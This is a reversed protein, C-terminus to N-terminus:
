ARPGLADALESRGNIGLTRYASTLHHEVTRLTLYFREAIQRNTHGAVALEAIGRQQKTLADIGTRQERPRRGGAEAIAAAVREAVAHAGCARASRYAQRLQTEAEQDGAAHLAVGHRLLTKAHELEATSDALVEASERLLGVGAAGGRIVGLARLAIGLPRPAGWQRALSVEEAALTEAAEQEGLRHHALAARSRWPLAAPNHLGMALMIQGHQLQDALAGQPDGTQMRLRGRTSLVAFATPTTPGDASLGVEAFLADLDDLRGQEVYSEALAVYVDPHRDTGSLPGQMALAMNLEEVSDDCRGEEYAIRSLVYHSWEAVATAGTRRALEMMEDACRRALDLRGALCFAGAALAHSTADQATGPPGIELVQNAYALAEDRAGGTLCVRMALTAAVARQIAPKTYPSDLLRRAKEVRAGDFSNHGLALSAAELEAALAPDQDAVRATAQDLVVTAGWHDGLRAIAEALARAIGAIVKPETALDAAETLRTVAAPLDVSLEAQGLEVLLHLRTAEATPETLARRLYTVASDPAARDVATRATARLVDVAWPEEVPGTALLHAAVQEGPRRQGHLLRAARLHAQDLETPPITLRVADRVISHVFRLPHTDALFGLATLVDTATAADGLPLDALAAAVPLDTDDGLVAVAKALAVSEPSTRELRAVVWRAVTHPGLGAVRDIALDTPGLGDEALAISLERLLFPNGGTTAHCATLFESHPASGFIDASLEGLEAEPLGTVPIVTLLDALEDLLDPDTGAEGTNRSGVVSINLGDARRVLYTLWRLSATDAWQLDDVALLLPRQEALRVTLWYLGHLVDFVAHGDLGDEKALPDTGLVRAAPSALDALLADRQEASLSALLPGFLQRAVGFAFDREMPRAQAWAARLGFAQAQATTAGLLATKGIGPPGDFSFHVQGATLLQRVRALEEERGVLRSAIDRM